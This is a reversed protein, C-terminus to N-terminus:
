VYRECSSFTETESVITLTLEVSVATLVEKLFKLFLSDKHLKLM